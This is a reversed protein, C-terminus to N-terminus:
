LQRELEDYLEEPVSVGLMRSLARKKRAKKLCEASDCLYAGRGSLKGTRDVVLHIAIDKQSATGQEGGAAANDINAADQPADAIVDKVRVIRILENKARKTGCGICTREPTHKSATM